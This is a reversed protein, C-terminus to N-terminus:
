CDGYSTAFHAECAVPLGKAWDPPTSMIGTISKMAEDVKDEPVVCVAADHVTLAIRWGAEKIKLMQQGVIIRALAQVVNEVLTGGWISVPGKRSQYMYRSKSEDTNLTLNPYSISLGNPLIIAAPTVKLCDHKGYFRSPYIDGDDDIPWNWLDKIVEDGEKWLEIIKTNTIRYLEVILRCNREEVEVFPPTTKLTHQLKLAGTGYGLGLICTKGVFREIPNAKSVDFGYIRSAFMSYVDEGRAFSEVLDDQGALWALVRAEIQSSDCNIIVHDDPAIIANKLAKKDKDRSPLNQFNVKDYGAWRGTHAGYYKLPIPLKGENRAGVGIFREIRSEEITSKTGLRVACLQQIFPDDHNTLDVFGQDNKALAFTDKGTTKSVKMPVKVKFEELLEAFQKNSALRKRVDEETECNLKEMLGALMEKKDAKVAELRDILIVDNVQLVPDIFMRLTMDILKLEDEPLKPSLKKFLAATLDVDNKCYEGYKALDAESFDLRKKGLADLVETGKVGLHYKKALFDLSGGVDVGHLARAMCLTDLYFTPHIDFLWSLIAGDFLTNHCLLASGGWDYESLFDKLEDHSGSFWVTPEDDAKVGVGVVEFQKNRIYEETTFKKLTFDKSYYTKFDLCIISM